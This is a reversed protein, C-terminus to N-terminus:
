VLERPLPRRDSLYVTEYPIPERNRAIQWGVELHSLASVQAANLYRLEDLVGRVIEIESGTFLGPDARRLARVRRQKLHFYAREEVAVDGADELERLTALVERPAPGYDLRQYTAGTIPAGFLGFAHFDSFYLEKNLKTM